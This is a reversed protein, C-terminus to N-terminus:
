WPEGLRLHALQKTSTNRSQAECAANQNTTTFNGQTIKTRGTKRAGQKEQKCGQNQGVRREVKAAKCADKQLPLKESHISIRPKGKRGGRREEREM